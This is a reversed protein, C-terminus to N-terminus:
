CIRVLSARLAGGDGHCELLQITPACQHADGLLAPALALGANGGRIALAFAPRPHQAGHLHPQLVADLQPAVEVLLPMAGAGPAPGRHVAVAWWRLIPPWFPM